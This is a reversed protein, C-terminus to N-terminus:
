NEKKTLFPHSYDKRGVHKLTVFPHVYTPQSLKSFFNYDEGQYKGNVVGVEFANYVDSNGRDKYVEVDKVLQELLSRHQCAFGLGVGSAPIFGDEDFEISGNIPKVFFVPNDQRVCYTAAVSKKKITWALIEVFDEPTFIIDDDLWFLYEADTDNLFQTLLKNRSSTVIGNEREAIIELSIGNDKALLVTSALALGLELPIVGSYCPIALCVKVDKLSVQTM